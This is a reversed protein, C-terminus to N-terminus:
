VVQNRLGSPVGSAPLADINDLLIEACRDFYRPTHGAVHPTIVVQPLAWLVHETPLPEPDTVDLAVGHLQNAQLAAVLAETDILRGRGVNIVIADTPLAALAAADILQETQPTLPCALVLVDTRPLVSMLDPYGVVQEAPGGREPTHRVGIREVDFADLRECIAAGIAGLGVVTVTSGALEGFAQYRRWTRAQQRRRGEDHRRMFSLIYGIVYEAINPGHVGSASTVAVGADAFADVPLHDVGATNASFLQLSDAAAVEEAAFYKGAIVTADAIAATREAPSRPHIIEWGGLRDELIAAYEAAPIGHADDDLVVLRGDTM